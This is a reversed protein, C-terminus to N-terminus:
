NEDGDGGGLDESVTVDMRLVGSVIVSDSPSVVVVGSPAVDLTVGLYVIERDFTTMEGQDLALAGGSATASTTKGSVPDVEAPAALIPEMLIEPEDFVRASDPGFALTVGAGFPFGNVFDAEIELRNTDNALVSRFEEDLEIEQPDLRIAGGSVSFAFPAEFVYGGGVAAGRELSVLSVGDGVVLDGDVEIETPYGAILDLIRSNTQDIVIETVAPAGLSGAPITILKRITDPASGNLARMRIEGAIASGIENSISLTISAAAPVFPDVDDPWDLSEQVPEFSADFGDAIGLVSGIELDLPDITVSIADDESLAVHVGGSGPTRARVVYRTENAPADSHFTTGAFDIPIVRREGGSLYADLRLTDGLVSFDPLLLAVDADLPTQNEITVLTAGADISADVLRLSDSWASPVETAYSQAPIVAIAQSATVNELRVDIDIADDPDVTVVGGGSGPSCGVISVAVTSGITKGSLDFVDVVTAGAPIEDSYAWTVLLDGSAVDRLEITLAPPPACAGGLPVALDNTVSLVLQGSALTMQTVDNLASAVRDPINFAFPPVIVDGPPVAPALESFPFSASGQLDDSLQFPGIRNEFSLGALSVSLEDDISVADIDGSRAIRVGTSDIVIGDTDEVLERITYSTAPLPISIETRFTPMKPKEIDCGALVLLAGAALAGVAPAYTGSGGALAHLSRDRKM